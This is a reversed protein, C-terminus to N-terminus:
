ICYSDVTGRYSDVKNKAAYNCGREISQTSVTVTTTYQMHSHGGQFTSSGERVKVSTNGVNSRQGGHYKNIHYKRTDM